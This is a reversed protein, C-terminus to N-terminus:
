SPPDLLEAAGNAVGDRLKQLADTTQALTTADEKAQKLQIERYEVPSRGEDLLEILRAPVFIPDMAQTRKELEILENVMNSLVPAVDNSKDESTLKFTAQRLCEAITEVQELVEDVMTDIKKKM